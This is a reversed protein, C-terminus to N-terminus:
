AQPCEFLMQVVGQVWARRVVWDEARRLALWFLMTGREFEVTEEIAEFSFEIVLKERGCGLAHEGRWTVLM